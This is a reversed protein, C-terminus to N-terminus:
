DLHETLVLGLYKYQSTYSIADDNVSVTVNSQPVSQNRFHVINSKSANISFLNNKCWTGMIDLMSQLDPESRAILAVYPFLIMAQKSEKAWPM